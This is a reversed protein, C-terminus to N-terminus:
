SWIRSCSLSFDNLYYYCTLLLKDFFEIAPVTKASQVILGNLRWSLKIFCFGANPVNKVILFGSCLNLLKGLTVCCSTPSTPNSNLCQGWPGCLLVLIVIICPLSHPTPPVFPYSYQNGWAEISPITWYWKVNIFWATSTFMDNWTFKVMLFVLFALGLVSLVPSPARSYGPPLLGRTNCEKGRSILM